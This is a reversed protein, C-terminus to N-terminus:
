SRLIDSVCSKLDWTQGKRAQYRQSTIRMQLIPTVIPVAEYAQASHIIHTLLTSLVSYPVYQTSLLYGHQNM